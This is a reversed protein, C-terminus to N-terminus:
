DPRLMVKSCGDKKDRFTKYFDPGEAPPAAERGVAADLWDEM